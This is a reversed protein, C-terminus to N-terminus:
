GELIEVFYDETHFLLGKSQRYKWARARNLQGLRQQRLCCKRPFRLFTRVDGAPPHSPPALPQQFRVRSWGDHVERMGRKIGCSSPKTPIRPSLPHSPINAGATLSMNIGQVLTSGSSAFLRPNNEASAM